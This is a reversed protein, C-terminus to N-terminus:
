SEKTVSWIVEKYIRLAFIKVNAVNKHTVTAETAKFTIILDTEIESIVFDVETWKGGTYTVDKFAIETNTGKLYTKINGVSGDAGNWQDASKDYSYTTGNYTFTFKGVLDMGSYDNDPRYSFKVTDANKQRKMLVDRDENNTMIMFYRSDNEDWSDVAGTWGAVRQVSGETVTYTTGVPDNTQVDPTVEVAEWLLNKAEFIVGVPDHVTLGFLVDVATSVNKMKLTVTTAGSLQLTTLNVDNGNADVATINATEYGNADVWASRNRDYMYTKENFRLAFDDAFHDTYTTDSANSKNTLTMSLTNYGEVYPVTVYQEVISNFLSAKFVYSGDGNDTFADSTDGFYNTVGNKMTGSVKTAKIVLADYTTQNKEADFYTNCDECFYHAAMGDETETAAQEPILELSDHNCKSEEASKTVSWIVEKYIRLAFIKQSSNNMTVTAETAKFTIILDTEIESIVFDVETWKGGTYTVDKFAIETNTGKLYTKINGVSGDAGNWQDASKDYSYTTGNYTFTFKGVLDMGSYDNDPRYSFKVTDANKQRKMLVDRDENNTMIMFYRSDNEDWSDVAGTWGAVRQVSGETVTYTTGVPDNTQVDPTVEVAEWLLNKAEFIVGVPDHVTLGFLVDVATSVNKMKLTVTTAGSLQLTTLNVDNGNADVATINATEYGNADVWASRNRDYMYTKENFRLAFDDAFHDTYTTDSANSKNTLTMSLANYGKAYPVTVYQEVINNHFSAKFEYVGEEETFVTEGFYQSFGNEMTGAIESGAEVVYRIVLADYTTQNQETDFYTECAECFYHAKMGDKEETAATEPILEGYTHGGIEGETIGCGLCTKPLVCTADQWNHGGIEGETIGCRICTKAADCTANKWIHGSTCDADGTWNINWARGFFTPFISETSIDCKKFDIIIKVDTIVDNITFTTVPWGAKYTLSSFDVDNGKNDKMEINGQGGRADYWANTEADYTYVENNYGLKFAGGHAKHLKHASRFNFTLTDYGALYPMYVWQEAYNGNESAGFEYIGKVGDLDANFWKNGHYLSVGCQLTGNSDDSYSPDDPDDFDDPDEYSDLPSSSTSESDSSNGKKFLKCGSCTLMLTLVSLFAILKKLKM